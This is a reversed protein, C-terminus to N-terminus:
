GAFAISSKLPVFRIISNNDIVRYYNLCLSCKWMPKWMGCPVLTCVQIASGPFYLMRGYSLTLEGDCM